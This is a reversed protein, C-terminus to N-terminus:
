QRGRDMRNEFERLQGQRCRIRGQGHGESIQPEEDTSGRAGASLDDWEAKAAAMTAEADAKATAVQEKLATVESAVSPAGMVVQRYDQKALNEKLRNVSAEVTQLQESAYQQADTRIENLSAEVKAVAQEAPEKQNACAALMTAAVLAILRSTRMPM